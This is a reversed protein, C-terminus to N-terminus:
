TGGKGDSVTVTFADQKLAAAANNAAAAHRAADTPTYVFAGNANVVVSGKGTPGSGSYSLPDGNPDTATVTGSVKGDVGPQGPNAVGNVPAGNSTSPAISVNIRATSTGGY